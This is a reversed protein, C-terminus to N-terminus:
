ELFGRLWMLAEETSTFLKAPYSPKNLGLFFHGIIRSLPSGVIGAIACVAEAGEEGAFYNRAEASVSKVGRIDVLLPRKKEKCFSSYAAIEEKAEELEIVSGENIKERIIGEEDLWVKAISTETVESEM